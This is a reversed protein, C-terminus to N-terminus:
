KPCVIQLNQLFVCILHETM